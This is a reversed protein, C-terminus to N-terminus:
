TLTLDLAGVAVRAVDGAIFARAVNWDGTWWCNGAANADWVSWNNYTESVTVNVDLALTNENTGLTSTTRVFSKRTGSACDTSVNTTGTAGPVGTHQQLYLTAPMATANLVANRGYLTLSGAM